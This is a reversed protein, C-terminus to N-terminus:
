SSLQRQDHVEFHSDNRGGVIEMLQTVLANLEQAQRYLEESAGASEQASAANQQVVTDMESVARNVQDIGLAQEKSAASIEAVLTAVKGASEQIASLAKAVESTVNVGAEANKMAGEILNATNKAAEASRQALNRVEEAVVAFGKGAEGARAAEVAANLALLNTQFAIEDITKIIKSTKDASTKIKAIADSMRKMADIGGIVVSQSDRMLNDAKEANDASHRTMSSMEELSTTSEELSAAQKNAGQALQQSAHSVQSSSANVQEANSGLADIVQKIPKTITKVIFVAIAMSLLLGIIIGVSIFQSSISITRTTTEAALTMDGLGMVAINKAQDIISQALITRKKASEERALWKEALKANAAKFTLMASRSEEIKKLDGEFVCIKKLTDLKDNAIDFIALTEIISKLDRNFQAKWTGTIVQNGLDIIDTVLTIRNLRQELQDGELGAIIEGQMAERQSELFSNCVKMYQRSSEEAVKREKELEEMLVVTEGVLREYELVGQEAKEAGEKLKSLLSSSQGHNVANKIDQKVNDLYKRAEALFVTNDTYEYGRMELLMSFTNREMNNAVTVEPVYDQSLTAACTGFRKMNTVAIIGTAISFLIVFGFGFGLKAALSIRKFM